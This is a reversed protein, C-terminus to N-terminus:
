LVVATVGAATRAVTPPVGLHRLLSCTDLVWALLANWPRPVSKRSFAPRGLGADIEDAVTMFSLHRDDGDGCAPLSVSVTACVAVWRAPGRGHPCLTTECREDACNPSAASPPMLRLPRWCPHLGAKTGQSSATDRSTACLSLLSRLLQGVVLPTWARRAGHRLPLAEQLALAASLLLRTQQMAGTHYCRGLELAATCGCRPHSFLWGLLAGIQQHQSGRRKGAGHDLFPTDDAQLLDEVSRLAQSASLTDTADSAASLCSM